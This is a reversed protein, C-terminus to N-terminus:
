HSLNKKVWSPYTNELLYKAWSGYWAYGNRREYDLETYNYKVVGDRDCFFPKNSGIEYYRAWITSLSDKVLQRDYGKKTDAKPVEIVKYGTIKVLDLWEVAANVAAKMEPTPDPQSLLFQVISVSEAASISPLEYARAKAPQLTVEDYQQCWATLKGNTKIQTKVICSIGEQVAKASPAVLKANVVELDNQQLAVDQLVKMVNIIANDNFTVQARYLNNLPYYQPWGGNKYQAKLLYRIGDEVADLYKPNNTTKFAQALYRIEKTTSMNDINADDKEAEKAIEIKETASFKVDYKFAKGKFQKSWGGSGRQFLLMNDAQLDQANVPLCFLCAAVGTIMRSLFKNTKMEM